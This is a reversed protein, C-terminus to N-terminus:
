IYLPPSAELAAKPWNMALHRCTRALALLECSLLRKVQSDTLIALSEEFRALISHRDM